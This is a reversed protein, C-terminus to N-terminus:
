AIVNPPNTPRLLASGSYKVWHYWADPIAAPRITAMMTNAPDSKRGTPPHNASRKPPILVNCINNATTASIYRVTAQSGSPGRGASMVDSALTAPQLRMSKGPAAHPATAIKKTPARASPMPLPDPNWSTGRRNRRSIPTIVPNTPAAPPSPPNKSARVSPQDFPRVPSKVSPNRTNEPSARNPRTPNITTFARQLVVHPPPEPARTYPGQGHRAMQHTTPLCQTRVYSRLGGPIGRVEPLLGTREPRLVKRRRADPGDQVPEWLGITFGTSKEPARTYFLPGIIWAPAM